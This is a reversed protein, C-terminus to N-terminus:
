EVIMLIRYRNNKDVKFSYKKDNQVFSTDIKGNFVDQLEGFDSVNSSTAINISYTGKPINSVDLLADYWARSKDFGDPVRLEVTYEGNDISGIDYTFRDFTDINEFYM